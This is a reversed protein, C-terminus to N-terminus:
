RSVEALSDLEDDSLEIAGAAVNELPHGSSRFSRSARSAVPTCYHARSRRRDSVSYANQVCAVPAIARAEALHSPEV